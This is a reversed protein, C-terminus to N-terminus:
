TRLSPDYFTPYCKLSEPTQDAPEYTRCEGDANNELNEGIGTNWSVNWTKYVRVGVPCTRNYTEATLASTANCQAIAPTNIVLISGLTMALFFTLSKKM